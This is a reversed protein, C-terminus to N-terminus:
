ARGRLWRAQGLISQAAWVILPVAIGTYLATPAGWRLWLLVFKGPDFASLALARITEALLALLTLLAGSVIPDSADVAASIRATVYGMTCWALSSLGVGEPRDVDILLGLVFGGLIGYASGRALALYFVLAAALDPQVGAIALRAGLTLRFALVVWVTVILRLWFRM